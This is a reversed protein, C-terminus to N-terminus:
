GQKNKFEEELEKIDKLITELKSVILQASQGYSSHKNTWGLFQKIEEKAFKVMTSANKLFEDEPEM